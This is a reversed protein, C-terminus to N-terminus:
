EVSAIAEELQQRQYTRFYRGELALLQEHTGSEVVSGNELVIIVDAAKVAAVRHSIVVTTREKMVPRLGGLIRQETSTDVASLCDDLVLIPAQKLVARSLGVRQRQGGSLTVGREGVMTDYGEPLFELIDQEVQATAAAQSIQERTWDGPAFGINEGVTRSFLFSEQPVFAISERLLPLPLDLVDVGDVFITGRPPNFVRALLSVLTSKGSGTRGIIGLTQGPKVTVDIERLAPRRKDAYTFTLNRFEIQGQIRAEAPVVPHASTAVDPTVLLVSQIRDFAAFGRQLINVVWGMAIMPWILMGIYLTLSVFGSLAIEGRLLARAPYVLALVFCLGALLQITPEILGQVRMMAMFRAVYAQNVDDFKREEAAEQCFAKVVRMGSINEQTVDSLKGFTDQVARSRLFVFKGFYVCAVALIPLPMLALLSLQWGIAYVMASLTLLVMMTADFVMLVGEGAVGRVAQLDNTAMAMLDGTKHTHYFSAPMEELHSFLAERIDQEVYRATGFVFIRWFYRCVAVVAVAGLIIGAYRYIGATTLTHGNLEDFFQGIMRPTVQLFLNTFFLAAVGAAYRWKYRLLAQFLSQPQSTTM